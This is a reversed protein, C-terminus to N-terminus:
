RCCHKIGQEALYLIRSEDIAALRIIWRPFCHVVAPQPEDFVGALMTTAITTTHATFALAATASAAGGCSTGSASVVTAATATTM